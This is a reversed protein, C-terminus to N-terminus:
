SRKMALNSFLKPKSKCSIMFYQFWSSIARMYIFCTGGGWLKERCQYKVMYQALFNQKKITVRWKVRRLGTSINNFWWLQRRRIFGYNNKRFILWIVWLLHSLKSLTVLLNHATRIRVVAKATEYLLRSHPLYQSFPITKEWILLLSNLLSYKGCSTMFVFNNVNKVVAILYILLTHCGYLQAVLLVPGFLPQLAM